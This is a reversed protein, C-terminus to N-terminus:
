VSVEAAVPSMQCAMSDLYSSGSDIRSLLAAVAQNSEVFCGAVAATAHASKLKPVILDGTAGAAALAAAEAVGHCGTIAFVVNSPTKLRPTEAELVAVPFVKLPVSFYGAAAVIAPESLRVDLTAIYALARCDIGADRLAQEALAIVEDVPAGRECGLGLTFIPAEPRNVRDQQIV